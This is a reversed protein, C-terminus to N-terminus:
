KANWRRILAIVRRRLAMCTKGSRPIVALIREAGSRDVYPGTPPDVRWHLRDFLGRVEIEDMMNPTLQLHLMTPVARDRRPGVRPYAPTM